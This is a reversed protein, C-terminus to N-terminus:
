DDRLASSPLPSADPPVLELDYGDVDQECHEKTNSLGTPVCQCKRDLPIPIGFIYGNENLMGSCILTNDKYIRALYNSAPKGLHKVKLVLDLGMMAGFPVPQKMTEYRHLRQERYLEIHYEANGHHLLEYKHNLLRLSVM